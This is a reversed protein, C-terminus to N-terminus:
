DPELFLRTLFSLDNERALQHQLSPRIVHVLAAHSQRCSQTQCRGALRCGISLHRFLSLRSAALGTPSNFRVSHWFFLSVGRAVTVEPPLPPLECVTRSYLTCQILFSGKELSQFDSNGARCGFSCARGPGDFDPELFISPGPVAENLNSGVTPNLVHEQTLSTTTSSDCSETVKRRSTYWM